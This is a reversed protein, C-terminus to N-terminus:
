LKIVESITFLTVSFNVDQGTPWPQAGHETPLNWPGMNEDAVDAFYYMQDEMNEM